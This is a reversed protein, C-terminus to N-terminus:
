ERADDPTFVTNTIFELHLLIQQIPTQVCDVLTLILTQLEETLATNTAVLQALVDADGVPLPNDADVPSGGSSLGTQITHVNNAEDTAVKVRNSKPGVPIAISINSEAM